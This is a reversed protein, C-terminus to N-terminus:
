PVIYSITGRFLNGSANANSYATGSAVNSLVFYAQNGAVNPQAGSLGPTNVYFVGGGPASSNEATFPLSIRAQAGSATVPYQFQVNCTVLRGIKTYTGFVNTFVLGAGSVDSPTFAGEEYADLLTGSGFQVGSGSSLLMSGTIDLDPGAEGLLFKQLTANGGSAVSGGIINTSQRVRNGTFVVHKAIGAGLNLCYDFNSFYNGHVNIGQSAALILISTQKNFGDGNLYNGTVTLGDGSFSIQYSAPSGSTTTVDGVWCGSVTLGQMNVARICNSEYQTQNEQLACSQFTVGQCGDLWAGYSGHLGFNCEDFLVTTMGVGYICYQGKRFYTTSVKVGVSQSIDLLAFAQDNAAGFYCRSISLNFVNLRLLRGTFATNTSEFAINDISIFRTNTTPLNFFVAATGTYIIRSSSQGTNDRGEGQISIGIPTGSLTLTGNCLYDGHPFLITCGNLSNAYDLATQIAATDDTVGDGVAGYDTVSVVKNLKRKNNNAKSM